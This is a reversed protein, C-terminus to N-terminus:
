NQTLKDLEKVWRDFSAIAMEVPAPSRMDVGALKLTEIPYRSSGSKLFDLYANQDATSGKGVKEALAMAASIGTAYQFVYFDYYFHPIRAWEVDALPDNTLEPGYYFANLDRYIEKLKLPTLPIEQEALSHIALEFEAFQTQRFLTGRIDDIKQNILFIKEERSKANELLRRILLEENFTSAVEALFIPYSAYQYPQHSRSLYSHMSHGAEHTLTFVDRLLDRYNMLIYPMSDYCGSSYAGSRKNKNEFRDVWRDEKLGKLLTNQYEPGLPTVSEILIDVAEHFPMRIDVQDILPVAFDWPHLETQKLLRKRLSVYNHLVDIKNHVAKILAHYVEVDINKPFLAAELSTNYHHSRAYFIHGQVDGNLLEALTNEYEAYKGHMRQFANKRLVPDHSRIHIAYSGHTLEHEVGKSDQVKGFKFDADNLASFAKHPAEMAKGALAILREQEPPLTHQKVRLIKELHFRYPALLPSDLYLDLTKEPLAILEPEFWATETSFDHLVSSIQSFAQKHEDETIDEDHRLHAYTFLTSLERSEILLHELCEKVVAPGEHLRGKFQVIQPFRSGQAPKEYKKLREKWSQLSPCLAEVNWKDADAVNKRETLTSTM